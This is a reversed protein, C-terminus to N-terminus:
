LCVEYLEVQAGTLPIGCFDWMLPGYGELIIKHTLHTHGIKLRSLRSELWLKEPIIVSLCGISM